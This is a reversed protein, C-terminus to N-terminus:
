FMKGIVFAILATIAISILNVDSNTLITDEGKINGKYRGQFTAGLLSDIHCGLLGLLICLVFQLISLNLLFYGLISIIFAGIFSFFEGLLSIAGNTGAEVRKLNTIFYAKDSLVGIESALTDALAVSISVVFPFSFDLNLSSFIALVAPILGNAVVNMARRAAREKLRQRKFNRKYKTAIAGLILFILLLLFWYIGQTFLITAGIIIAFITGGTDLVRFKLSIIAFLLCIIINTFIEIM